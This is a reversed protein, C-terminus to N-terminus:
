AGGCYGGGRGTHTISSTDVVGRASARDNRDLSCHALLNCVRNDLGDHSYLACLDGRVLHDHAKALCHVAERERRAVRVFVHVQRGLVLSFRKPSWVACASVGGCPRATGSGVEGHKADFSPRAFTPRSQAMALPLQVRLRCNCRQATTNQRRQATALTKAGCVCLGVKSDTTPRRRRPRCVIPCGM